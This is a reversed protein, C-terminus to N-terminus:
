AAERHGRGDAARGTAAARALALAANIQRAQERPPIGIVDVLPPTASHPGSDPEQPTPISM